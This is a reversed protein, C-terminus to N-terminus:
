HVPLLPQALESPAAPRSWHLHLHLPAAAAVAAATAAVAVIVAVSAAVAVHSTRHRLHARAPRRPLPSRANRSRERFLLPLFLPTRRLAHLLFVQSRHLHSLSATFTCACTWSM